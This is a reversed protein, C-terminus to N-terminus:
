NTLDYKRREFYYVQVFWDRENYDKADLTIIAEDFKWSYVVVTDATDIAPSGYERTLYSLACEKLEECKVSDTRHTLGIASLKHEADFGVSRRFPQDCSPFLITDNLIKKGSIVRLSGLDVNRELKKVVEEAPMGLRFGM